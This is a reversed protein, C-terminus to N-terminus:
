SDVVIVVWVGGFGLLSFWVFLEGLYIFVEDRIVDMGCGVGDRGIVFTKGVCLFFELCLILFIGIFLILYLVRIDNNLICLIGFM